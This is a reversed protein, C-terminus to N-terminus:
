ARADRKGKPRGGKAKVKEKVPEVTREDNLAAELSRAKAENREERPTMARPEPEPSPGPPLGDKIYHRPAKPPEMPLPNNQMVAGDRMVPEAPAAPAPLAKPAVERMDASVPAALRIAMDVDVEPGVKLPVLEFYTEMRHGGINVQVPARFKGKDFQIHFSEGTALLRVTGELGHTSHHVSLKM